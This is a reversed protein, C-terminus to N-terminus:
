PTPQLEFGDLQLLERYLALVADVSRQWTYSQARIRASRGLRARLSPDAALRSLAAGVSEPTREVLTGAENAGILDEIGSVKTGVIPLGSAAAEYAAISFTEYLTPVVFVDAARCFQDVDARAGLFRVRDAIGYRRALARFRSEDGPGVVWLVLNQANSGEAAALGRIAIELGKRHWDGGLFLTVVQSDQVGQGRRLEKRAVPDPAFRDLDVGNPTTVVPIGPYHRVLEQAVGQSVAAFVRTYGARYSWREAALALVRAIATNARRAVSGGSPALRGTKERFGAHCFQVTVVDARNPVIAGVTHVLDPRARVIQVAAQFYFLSFGVPAPRAILPIPRWEVLDRLDKGLRNSIVTFNVQSSARRILEAAAREQGGGDHVGQAVFAV